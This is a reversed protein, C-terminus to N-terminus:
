KIKTAALRDQTENLLERNSKKLVPHIENPAIENLPALTFRRNPIEPHPVKLDGKDIIENEYYLLDIDILRPKWKETRIRGMEKEINLILRLMEDASKDSEIKLIQNFFNPQESYGWPVTEYVSSVKVIKGINAHILQRARRLNLNRDGLNTGLLLYKGKM